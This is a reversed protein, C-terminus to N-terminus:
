QLGVMGYAPLLARVLAERSFRKIVSARGVAGLQARLAPNSVLQAIRESLQAADGPVFTLASVGPTVIEGAGGACSVITARGCAQAEVIVLGFPEPATSAHVVIDLARYAPAMDDIFGTFGVRDSIGLRAACARLEDVQWQSGVTTYQPGGIVYARVPLEAPLLALARLFVEHGKWRAFTAPLGIRITGAAPAPLGCAADLDMRPGDPRFVDTDVANHVVTPAPGGLVTEADRAVSASVAVLRVHPGRGLRLLRATLRRSGPYDHLHWIVRRNPRAMRVTLLHTKVGHSHVVDPQWRALMRQLRWRTALVHPGHMAMRGALRLSGLGFEGLAQIAAPLHLVLTEVGLQRTRVALPGEAPVILATPWDGRCSKLAALIELVAREAGGLGASATLFCVRM